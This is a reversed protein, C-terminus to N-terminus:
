NEEKQASIQQRLLDGLTASGAPQNARGYDEMAEKEESTEKAKVSLTLARNKRDVNVIKAEVTDDVRLVTRADDV